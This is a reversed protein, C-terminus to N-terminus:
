RVPMMPLSCTLGSDANGKRSEFPVDGVEAAEGMSVHALDGLDGLPEDRLRLLREKQHDVIGVGMQRPEGLLVAQRFRRQRGVVHTRQRKRADVRRPQSLTRGVVVVAHAPQIAPM